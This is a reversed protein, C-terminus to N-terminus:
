SNIDRVPFTLSFSTGCKEKSEVSIKILQLDALKKVISLGLGLGGTGSNRSEDVRYFRDFVANLKEEPIGIGQDCIRCVIATATREVVIAILSGSPSYKIANSLINEFMMDLMGPDAAVLANEAHDVTISISKALASLRVREIVNELHRSLVITEIHPNMKSSEYRALLLLQDIMRGMRNLETLCFQIRTEYHERERPKRILVELTGKLM